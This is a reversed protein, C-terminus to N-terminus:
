SQLFKCGIQNALSNCNFSTFPLLIPLKAWAVGRMSGRSTTSEGDTPTDVNLKEPIIVIKELGGGDRVLGPKTMIETTVWVITSPKATNAMLLAGRISSREM